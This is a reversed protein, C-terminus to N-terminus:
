LNAHIKQLKHNTPTMRKHRIIKIHKSEICPDYLKEIENSDTVQNLQTAATAISPSPNNGNKSNILEIDKAKSESDSM